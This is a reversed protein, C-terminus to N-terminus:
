FHVKTNNSVNKGAYSWRFLCLSYFKYIQTSVKYKLVWINKYNLSIICLYFILQNGSIM